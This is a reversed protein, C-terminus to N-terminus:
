PAEKWIITAYWGGTGSANIELIETSGDGVLATYETGASNFYKLEKGAFDLDIPTYGMNFYGLGRYVSNTDKLSIYFKDGATDSSFMIRKLQIYGGTQPAIGVLKGESSVTAYRINIGKAM